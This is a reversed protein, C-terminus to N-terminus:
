QPANSSAPPPTIPPIVVAEPSSTFLKEVKGGLIRYLAFERQTAGRLEFLLEGRNDAMADVPDILHMAPNEDLDAADTISKFLVIVNGYLDPQAILTIFKEPAAASGSTPVSEKGANSVKGAASAQLPPRTENPTGTAKLPPRTEDATGAAPKLPPRSEDAANAATKLPPLTEDATGAAAPAPAPTHASFVITAPGGYTLQFVRFKEDQLALPPPPPAAKTHRTA